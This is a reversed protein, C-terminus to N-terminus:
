LWNNGCQKLSRPVTSPLTDATNGGEPDQLINLSDGSLYGIMFGGFTIHRIISAFGM